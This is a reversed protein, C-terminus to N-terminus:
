RTASVRASGATGAAAIREAATAVGVEREALQVGPRGAQLEQLADVVAAAQPRLLSLGAGAAVRGGESHRRRTRLQVEVHRRREVIRGQAIPEDRDGVGRQRLGGLRQPLDLQLELDALNGLEFHQPSADRAVVLAGRDNAGRM